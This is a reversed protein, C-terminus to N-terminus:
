SDVLQFHSLIISDVVHVPVSGDFFEVLPFFLLLFVPCFDGSYFEM